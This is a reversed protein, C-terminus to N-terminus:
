QVGIAGPWQAVMLMDSDRLPLSQWVEETVFPMFPHLMKLCTTLITYLKWATARQAVADTGKLVVKSREIIEDAFTHWVYHYARDAALDIRYEELNRTVDAVVRNLEALDEEDQESLDHKETLDTGETNELVFRTINWIKNAFNKYGRIKDERLALDSGPPNGVVLGIRLADTGFKSTLDLPNTVNGKSKSMKKGHQDNVLGHLYVTHFPARSALYLGFIIMRPVWKFILDHGTEMVDTPYYQSTNPFDTVLLPWQGSSFWTDFTDPDKIWGDGPSTLSAKTEGGKFWAPIPIGWVIQRSINWDLTNEMWYRFIKEYNDPIFKVDGDRVSKLAM